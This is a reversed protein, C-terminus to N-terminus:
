ELVRRLKGLAANLRSKVTGTSLNMAAATERITLGAIYHCVVVERIPASLEAIAKNVDRCSESQGALQEAPLTREDALDDLEDYKKAAARADVYARYGITMVWGRPNRIRPRSGFGSWIRVATEQFVDEADQSGGCLRRLMAMLAPGHADLMRMFERHLVSEAV